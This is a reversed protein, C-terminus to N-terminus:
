RGIKLAHDIVAREAQLAALPSVPRDRSVVFKEGTLVAEAQAVDYRALYEGPSTKEADIIGKTIIDRRAQLERIRRDLVALVDEGDIPALKLKRSIMNM